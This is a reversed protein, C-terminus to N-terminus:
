CDRRLNASEALIWDRFAAVTRRRATTELYVLYYGGYDFTVDSLRVLRGGSVDGASLDDSILAVGRGALAAEIALMTTLRGRVAPIEVAGLGAEGFWRRWLAGNDEHLLKHGAIEAPELWDRGAPKFHPAGVPYVLASSILDSTLGEWTGPGFRIAVDCEYRRLDALQPTPSIKIDVDPYLDQFGGLRSMLWKVAFTPECSISLAEDTRTTLDDTALAIADLAPTVAGLYCEGLATLAVGRNANAFLQVGLRHELGRIHRSVAAHSVNLEEAAKSFSGHRGAAEFARLANLPPLHRPM